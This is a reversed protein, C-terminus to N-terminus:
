AEADPQNLDVFLKQPPTKLQVRVEACTGAMCKGSRIFWPVGEWRWSDIFLRLACFTEVDSDPAVGAEQRYGEYQGRALDDPRLARMPRFVKTKETQVADYARYAPAAVALRGVVPFLHNHFVARLCGASQDCARRGEAGFWES